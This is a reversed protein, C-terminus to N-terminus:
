NKPPVPVPVSSEELSECYLGESGTRIAGVLEARAVIKKYRRRIDHRAPSIQIVSYDDLNILYKGWKDELLLHTAREAFRCVSITLNTRGGPNRPLHVVRKTRELSNVIRLGRDYEALRPHAKSRLFYTEPDKIIPSLDLSEEYSAPPPNLRDVIEDYDAVTPRKPPGRECSLTLLLLSMLKLVSITRVGKMTVGKTTPAQMKM